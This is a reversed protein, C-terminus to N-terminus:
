YFKIKTGKPMHTRHYQGSFATYASNFAAASNNYKEYENNAYDIQAELWKVYIDDYPPPVLLVAGLDEEGYGVFPADEGGEHTDVVEARIMGDLKSLWGLKTEQAFNNPKIDDTYNIAEIVTM